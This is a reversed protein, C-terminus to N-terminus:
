IARHFLIFLWATRGIKRHYLLMSFFDSGVKKTCYQPIEPIHHIKDKRKWM